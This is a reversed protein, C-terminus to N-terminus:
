KEAQADAILDAARSLREWENESLRFAEKGRVLYAGRGLVAVAELSASLPVLLAPMPKAIPPM